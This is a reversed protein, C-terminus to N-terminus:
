VPEAPPPEVPPADPFAADLQDAIGRVADIEDALDPGGSEALKREIRDMAATLSAGIRTLGADLEDEQSMITDVGQQLQHLHKHIRALEAEIRELRKDTPDRPIPGGKIVYNLWAGLCSTM